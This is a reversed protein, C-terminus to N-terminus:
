GINRKKIVLINQFAFLETRLPSDNLPLLGKPLLRFLDYDMLIKRFDSFFVRSVTNMENFEFQICGIRGTELLRSAGQLVFLEHGETDIKLFDIFEIEENEAIDDLMFVQTEVVTADEKHIDSIVAEHLSAHESGNVSSRDFLKAPGTASGLAINHCKVRKPDISGELMRFNEPHPEFAHTTALPFSASLATSFEGVNAGVDFFVPHSSKILQHLLNRIVYREGSVKDNEYNMVGLGSLGLQFLRTNMKRFVRKAFLMRYGKLIIKFM